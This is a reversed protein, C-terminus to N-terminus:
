HAELRARTSLYKGQLPISRKEQPLSLYRLEAELPYGSDLFETSRFESKMYSSLGRCPHSQVVMQQALPESYNTKRYPVSCM